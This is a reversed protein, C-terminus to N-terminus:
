EEQRKELRPPMATQKEILKIEEGPLRKDRSLREHRARALYGALGSGTAILVMMGVTILQSFILAGGAAAMLTCIVGAKFNARAHAKRIEKEQNRYGRLAIDAKEREAALLIRERERAHQEQLKAREATIGAKEKEANLLIREREFAHREQMRQLDNKHLDRGIYVFWFAALVAMILSFLVVVAIFQPDQLWNLAAMVTVATVLQIVIIGFLFKLM